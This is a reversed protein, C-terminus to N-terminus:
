SEYYVKFLTEKLDTYFPQQLMLKRIKEMAFGIYKLYRYDSRTNYIYAFSGVAKFARQIVMDDYLRLFTNFDGQQHIEPDLKDYYYKILKNKNEPILEYYCDDLLSAIDYQPIGMRADQFDIMVLDNKVCMVNRSHFDRHTLVKPYSGLRQCIPELLTRLRKQYDIDKQGLFKDIFYTITFDMESILKEYDFKLDFLGSERVVSKQMQHLPLLKDLVEKYIELEQNPDKLTALKHLLTQNGLDEELIYGKSENTDYVHPVRVGNQELFNQIAVFSNKEGPGTPNDLCVVYSDQDTFIRYYRRTSADGILKDVNILKSVELKNAEVSQGFLEEILFQESQELKM